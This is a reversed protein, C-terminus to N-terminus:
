SPNKPPAQFPKRGAAVAVKYMVALDNVMHILGQPGKAARDLLMVPMEPDIKRIIASLEARKEDPLGAGMAVFNISGSTIIMKINEESNSAVVQRGYRTLEEGIVTLTSQLRGIILIKPEEIKM